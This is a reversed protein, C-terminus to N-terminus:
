KLRMKNTNTHSHQNHLGNRAKYHSKNEKLQQTNWIKIPRRKDVSKKETKKVKFIENVCIPEKRLREQHADYKMWRLKEYCENDFSRPTNERPQYQDRIETPLTTIFPFMMEDSVLFQLKFFLTACICSLTHHGLSKGSEILHDLTELDDAETCGPQPFKLGLTNGVNNINKAHADRLEQYKKDNDSFSLYNVCDIKLDQISQMSKKDHLVVIKLASEKTTM